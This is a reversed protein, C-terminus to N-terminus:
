PCDMSHQKREDKLQKIQKKLLRIENKLKKIEETESSKSNRCICDRIDNSMVVPWCGPILVKGAIRDYVYHCKM